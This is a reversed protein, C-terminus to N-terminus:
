LFLYTRLGLKFVQTTGNPLSSKGDGDGNGTALTPITPPSVAACALALWRMGDDDTGALNPTNRIYKHTLIRIARYHPRWRHLFPPGNLKYVPPKM